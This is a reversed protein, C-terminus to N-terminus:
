ADEGKKKKRKAYEKKLIPIGGLVVGTGLITLPEPVPTETGNVSFQFPGGTANYSWSAGQNSSVVYGDGITWGSLGTEALSSTYGWRYNGSGGSSIGSILWYTTNATLAQPTTLTFTNNDLSTTISGPKTFSTIQTGPKGGNNSYLRVFLNADAAYETLLLTASELKYSGSGTTFSSGTWADSKVSATNDNTQSLNEVFTVSVASAQKGLSLSLLLALSGGGIKALIQQNKTM